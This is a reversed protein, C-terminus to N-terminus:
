SPAHRYDYCTSLLLFVLIEFDNESAYHAQLWSLSGSVVHGFTFYLSHFVALHNPTSAATASSGLETVYEPHSLVSQMKVELPDSVEKQGRSPVRMCMYVSACM